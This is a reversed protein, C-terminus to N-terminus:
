DSDGSYYDLHSHVPTEIYVKGFPYWPRTNDISCKKKRQDFEAKTIKAFFWFIKRSDISIDRWGDISYIDKSPEEEYWESSTKLTPLSKNMDQLTGLVSMSSKHDILNSNDFQEEEHQNVSSLDFLVPQAIPSASVSPIDIHLRNILIKSSPKNFDRQEELEKNEQYEKAISSFSTQTNLLLCKSSILLTKLNLDYVKDLDKRNEDLSKHRLNNIRTLINLTKNIDDIHNIPSTEVQQNIPSIEVQQNPKPSLVEVYVSPKCGM